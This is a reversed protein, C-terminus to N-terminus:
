PLQGVVCRRTLHKLIAAGPGGEPHVALTPIPYTVTLSPLRHLVLLLDQKMVPRKLVHLGAILRHRAKIAQGENLNMVQRPHQAGCKLVKHREIRLVMHQSVEPVRREYPQRFGTVLNRSAQVPLTSEIM